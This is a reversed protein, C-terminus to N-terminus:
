CEHRFFASGIDLGVDVGEKAKLISKARGPPVVRASAMSNENTLTSMVNTTEM